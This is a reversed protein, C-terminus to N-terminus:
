RRAASHSAPRGFRFDRCLWPIMATAPTGITRPGPKIEQHVAKPAVAKKALINEECRSRIKERINDIVTM